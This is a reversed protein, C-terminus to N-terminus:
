RKFTSFPVCCKPVYLAVNKHASDNLVSFFSKNVRLPDLVALLITFWWFVVHTTNLSNTTMM